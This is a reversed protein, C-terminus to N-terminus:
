LKLNVKYNFRATFTVDLKYDSYIKLHQGNCTANNSVTSFDATIVAHKARKINTMRNENIYVPVKSKKPNNVRCTADLDAGAVPTNIVVTDVAAWNEDYAVLTLVADIPYKNQVILNIVGDTIGAVNTNTASLDFNFTDQLVLNHAILSLPVEANLNIKLNSELYAFDRYQQNNGGLNTRVDVDYKLKNPLIGLLDKINSNSSNIAFNNIAPTLPFDTARNIALPQGLISGTLTRTGNNPSIATLSNIKVQGDVGIGNEVSFNMNVEEL